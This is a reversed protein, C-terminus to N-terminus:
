PLNPGKLDLQYYVISLWRGFKYGGNKIRGAFYFGLKEHTKISGVNEEDISAIITKIQRKNAEEIICKLLKTGIGKGRHEKHVYISHEVTYRYARYPLFHAFTVFGIVQNNEEYVFMPDGKQLKKSYWEQREELTELEERYLATTNLIADNYIENVAKLDKEEMPRILM